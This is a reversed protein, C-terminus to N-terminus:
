NNSIPTLTLQSTLTGSSTGTLMFTYIKGAVIQQGSIEGSSTLVTQDIMAIKATTPAVNFFPTYAKYAINSDLKASGIYCSTNLPDASLNIFRVKAMGAAPASLDDSTFVLATNTVIGASFASYYNSGATISETASNLPTGTTTIGFAFVVSTGATIPQYGSSKLFALNSAAVLKTSNVSIDTNAVGACGNVFTVNATTAPGPNNKKCSAFAIVMALVSFSVLLKKM